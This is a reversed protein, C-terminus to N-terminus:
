LDSWMIPSDEKIGSRATRGLVVDLYKAPIGTAPRLLSVNERSFREGAKISRVAHLSRRQLLRSDKEDPMVRKVGDGLASQLTRIKKVMDTFEKPEMSHGHDPGNRSKDDTFHKEVAVAGFSVSSLLVLDGPSHDSYGVPLGFCRELVPLVRVNAQTIDSPYNAVCHMLLLKDNGTSRIIEVAADVDSISSAGTGLLIPKKTVGARRLLDFNDIDGSGIKIAPADVETLMNLSEVDWPSTFFDIQESKAYDALEFHWEKPMENTLYMDWVSKNWNEQFSSKTGFGDKSILQSTRFSQFKAADAGCNKAMRILNKARKIDQDHNSGIEAIIYIQRYKELKKQGINIL